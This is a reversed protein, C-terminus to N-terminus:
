LYINHLYIKMYNDFYLLIFANPNCTDVHFFIEFALIIHM